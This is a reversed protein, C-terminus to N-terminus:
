RAGREIKREEKCRGAWLAWRWRREVQQEDVAADWCDGFEVAVLLFLLLEVERLLAVLEFLLPLSSLLALSM